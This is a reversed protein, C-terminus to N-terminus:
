PTDGPFLSTMAPFSTTGDYGGDSGLGLLWEFTSELNYDTANGSYVTGISLPSVVSVYVSGGCVSLVVGTTLLCWTNSVGGVSYGADNLGEDYVVFFATANALRQVAPTTSNLIPALFGRLWADCFTLSASHCDDYSNPVYLSFSPLSGNVVSANFLRSNVLHQDCRTPNYRIDKYFLFPNHDNVYSGGSKLQCSSNMGEFYGAWTLGAADLLDGINQTGLIPIWAGGCVGVGGSTVALYNPPSQHCAAYFNPASGYREELYREYPAFSLVSSRPANEMMIVVVHRITPLPAPVASFAVADAVWASTQNDVGVMDIPGGNAGAVADVVAATDKVQPTRVSVADAVLSEGTGATFGDYNRAGAFGLVLDGASANVKASFNRTQGGPYASSNQPPGIAVVSSARVGTLDVILVAANGPCTPCQPIMRVGVSVNPGGSVNTAAWVALGNHSGSTGFAMRSYALPAFADGASDNVSAVTEKGNLAFGLVITDGPSPAFAPSSGSLVNPLLLSVSSAVQPPASAAAPPQTSAHARFSALPGSGGTWGVLAPTLLAAVLM